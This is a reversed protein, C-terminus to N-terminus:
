SMAWAPCNRRSPSSAGTSTAAIVNEVAHRRMPKETIIAPLERLQRGPDQLDARYGGPLMPVLRVTEAFVVDFQPQRAAWAEAFSPL